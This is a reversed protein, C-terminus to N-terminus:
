GSQNQPGDRLFNIGLWGFWLPNVIFGGLVAPVAILPNGAEVIFLRGVYLLLLLFASAYGFYAIGAPFAPSRRILLAFTLIAIGTVGFTFLGRPDVQSPLPGLSTGPPNIRNALDYGGHAASALEAVVGILLAWTAFGIDIDRLQRYLAAMVATALLAGMLLFLGALLQGVVPASRTVIIFAVAYLFASVASGLAAIGAFQRFSSQM